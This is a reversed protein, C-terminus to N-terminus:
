TRITVLYRSSVGKEFLCQSLFLHHIHSHRYPFITTIHYLLILISSYLNILHLHGRPFTLLFSTYSSPLTFRITYYSSTFSTNISSQLLHTFSFTFLSPLIILNTIYLFISLFLHSFSFIYSANIQIHYLLHIYKTSYLPIYLSLPYPTAIFNHLNYIYIQFIILILPQLLSSGTLSLLIFYAFPSPLTFLNTLLLSLSHTYLIFFSNSFHIVLSHLIFQLFSYIFAPLNLVFRLFM